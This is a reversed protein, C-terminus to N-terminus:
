SQDLFQALRELRAKLQSIKKEKQDAPLKMKQLQDIEYELRGKIQMRRMQLWVPNSKFYLTIFLAALVLTLGGGIKLYINAPSIVEIQGKPREKQGEKRDSIVEPTGGSIVLNIKKQSPPFQITKMAIIENPEPTLMVGPNAMTAANLENQMILHTTKSLKYHSDLDIQAPEGQYGRMLYRVRYIKTGPIVAMGFVFLDEKGEVPEPNLRLMNNEDGVKGTSALAQFIQAGPPLKVYFAPANGKESFTQTGSNEVYYDEQVLLHNEFYSFVVIKFISINNLRSTREYVTVPIQLTQTADGHPVRENYPVGQHVVQVLFPALQVPIDQFVVTSGTQKKSQIIEMQKSLSLLRVEEVSKQPAGKTGNAVNVQIDLALAPASLGCFLLFIFFRRIMQKGTSYKM